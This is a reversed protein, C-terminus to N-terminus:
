TEKDSMYADLSRLLTTQANPIADFRGQTVTKQWALAAIIVRRGAVQEALLMSAADSIAKLRMGADRLLDDHEEGGETGQARVLRAAYELGDPVSEIILMGKRRQGSTWRDLEVTLRANEQTLREVEAFRSRSDQEAADKDVRANELQERLREVEALLPEILPWYQDIQERNSAKEAESLDAYPTAIQREWRDVLTAPIVLARTREDRRGQDHMWRQWHAWREHEIAALQEFLTRGDSVM